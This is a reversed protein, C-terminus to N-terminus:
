RNVAYSAVAGMGRPENLALAVMEPTSPDFLCPYIGPEASRQHPVMVRQRTDVEVEHENAIPLGDARENCPELWAQAAEGDGARAALRALRCPLRHRYGSDPLIEVASELPRAQTSQRASASAVYDVGPLSESRM